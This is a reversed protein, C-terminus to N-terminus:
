LEARRAPSAARAAVIKELAELTEEAVPAAALAALLDRGTGGRRLGKQIVTSFSEGPRKLSRLLEYTELDVSITKYAM